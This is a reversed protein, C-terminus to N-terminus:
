ARSCNAPWTSRRATAARPWTSRAINGGAGARNEIIVPQGWLKQLEVGVFRAVIDTTGAAPFPVVIKVPKNPYGQAAAGLTVLTAAAAAILKTFSHM